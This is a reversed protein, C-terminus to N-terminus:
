RNNHNTGLPPVFTFAFDYIIQGLLGICYDTIGATGIGTMRNHDVIHFELQAQQGAANQVLVLGADQPVSNNDIGTHHQLFNGVHLGFTHVGAIQQDAVPGMHHKRIVFLLIFQLFCSQSIGFDAGGFAANTGAVHIFIGTGADPDAVQHIRFNQCFFQLSGQGHFVVQEGFQIPCFGHFIFGHQLIVQGVSFFQPGM